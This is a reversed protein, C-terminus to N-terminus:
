NLNVPMCETKESTKQMKAECRENVVDILNTAHMRADEM